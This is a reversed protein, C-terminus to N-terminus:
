QKVIRITQNIKEGVIKLIYHDASAASLSFEHTSGEMVEGLNEQHILEGKMNFIYAKVEKDSETFNVYFIGQTPNPYARWQAQLLHETSTPKGLLYALGKFADIKGHGAVNNPTFAGTYEDRISTEAFTEKAKDIDLNPYAELWLAIVGAVYPSSMSTGPMEDYYYKKGGVVTEFPNKFGELVADLSPISSMIMAGPALIDPKIRGDATPGKSSFFAVEGEEGPIYQSEKTIYAGATIISNGVGGIEGVTYNTDGDTWGELGRDSFSWGGNDDLWVHVLKSSHINVEVIHKQDMNEMTKVFLIVQPKNNSLTKHEVSGSIKGKFGPVEIPNIFDVKSDTSMHVKSEFVSRNTTTDIIAYQISLTDGIAGWANVVIDDGGKPVDVIFTRLTDTPQEFTKGVHIKLSGENGASGVLLRGKGALQDCLIDFSGSGDHPGIHGGISLNIVCPKGQEEAYDFIYKVADMLAVDEMTTSVFVLDASSAVGYYPNDNHKNSGAAIGAVHSGHSEGEMADVDFAAARIAEETAYETGYSFGEPPTGEEKRQEWVRKVRLKGDPDTFNIHAYEFGGDIIGVIVNDGTYAQELPTEARHVRDVTSAKRAKDMMRYMPKSIEICKVEPLTALQELKGIPIRATAIGLDDFQANLKVGFQEVAAKDIEGNFHIYASVADTEGASKSQPNCKAETKRQELQLRTYASLKSSQASTSTAIALLIAFSLLQKLM